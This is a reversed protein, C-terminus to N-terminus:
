QPKPVLRSPFHLGGGDVVVEVAVEVDVEDECQVLVVVLVAELAVVVTALVVDFTVVVVALLVLLAKLWGQPNPLAKFPLHLGAGVDVLEDAVVVVVVLVVELGVVVGFPHGVAIVTVSVTM